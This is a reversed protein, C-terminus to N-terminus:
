PDRHVPSAIGAPTDFHSDALRGYWFLLSHCKRSTDSPYRLNICSALSSRKDNYILADVQHLSPSLPGFVRIDLARIRSRLTNRNFGLLAAARIQNGRTAALAAM